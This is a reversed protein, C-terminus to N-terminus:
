AVAVWGTTGTGSQKVWLTGGAGGDLNRWDSGPPAAVVGEPSGRGVGSTCGTPEGADVHRVAGALMGSAPLRAARWAGGAAIWEVEALAPVDLDAGTWNEQAPSAGTAAFRVAADCRVALRRDEALPAGAYAVAAAGSGDGTVTVPIPVGPAGYGAGGATLMAGIIAGGAIVAAAAAGGGAGGIALTASTYGSGGATIRVFRIAGGAAAARAPLMSRVPGAAAGISIREAIDPFVVQQVGGADVPDCRFSTAFNWRNGRIVASDTDAWLCNEATGSGVFHNRVVEVLQPGDRLWVGCAPGDVGIWNGAISTASSALGFSRGSGDAEVNLVAVAAVTSGTVSNGEVRVFQGGGCNIGYLGGAVSNGRVDLHLSGGCDIGYTAAGTVLNGALTGYSANALIGAGGVAGAGNDALLNGQVAIARGSVAIGYITNDHCLNGAVLVAIADPNANGWVPPEANAANYNGVSIGRVNAWARNGIVQGLRAQRSFAADNFDLVIGYQGNGHARCGAVLVGACAQVWLGHVANTEFDCDRVVHECLAPASSQFVLGTGLSAGGANRFVCRHFAAHTCANTVQVGWSDVGVAAGNADFIVGEAHFRDAQVAIWAGNGAQAGRRLVSVGPVGLLTVGAAAITFQGNVIYTRPGLRLPVGALVARAFAATDDSAGDGKAGFAEVPVADAAIDALARAATAGRATTVGTSLDLGGLGGLAGMFQAYSVGVNRGGQALPV